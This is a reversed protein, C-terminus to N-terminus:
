ILEKLNIDFGEIFHKMLKGPFSWYDIYYNYELTGEAWEKFRISNKLRNKAKVSTHKWFNTSMNNDGVYTLAIIDQIKEIQIKHYLNMYEPIDYDSLFENTLFELFIDIVNAYYHLSIGGAPEFFYLKNGLYLIRDDMVKNRYYSNWTISRTKDLDIDPNVKKFHLYAEEKSTIDKNYLYGFAKRHQLPIGFMWGNKHYYASTYNENYEKYDPYLIVSDVTCLEPVSYLSSQLEEKPPTGRCDIIYDYEYTSNEGTVTVKKNEQKIDLVKDHYEKFMHSYKKSLEKIIYESIKEANVHCAPSDYSATFDKGLGDEWFIKLGWRVTMDVHIADKLVDFKLVQQLLNFLISSTAEGVTLVDIKPDHICDIQIKGIDKFRNVISLLALASATGRGIVAIKKM